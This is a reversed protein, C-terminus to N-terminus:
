DLTEIVQRVDKEKILTTTATCAVRVFHQARKVVTANHPWKYPGHTSPEPNALLIKV